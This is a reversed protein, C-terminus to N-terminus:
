IMHLRENQELSHCICKCFDNTLFREPDNPTKFTCGPVNQRVHYSDERYACRLGEACDEDRDCDGTCIPCGDKGHCPNGAFKILNSPIVEQLIWKQGVLCSDRAILPLELGEVPIDDEVSLFGYLNNSLTQDFLNYVFTNTEDPDRCIGYALSIQENGIALSAGQTGIFTIAQTANESPAPTPPEMAYVCGGPDEETKMRGDEDFTWIQAKNEDNCEALVILSLRDAEVCWETDATSSLLSKIRFKKGPSSSDASSDLSQLHRPPASNGYEISTSERIALSLLFALSLLPLKM